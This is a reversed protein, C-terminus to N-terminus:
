EFHKPIWEPINTEPTPNVSYYDHYQMQHRIPKKLLVCACVGSPWNLAPSHPTTLSSFFIITTTQSQTRTQWNASPRIQHHSMNTPRFQVPKVLKPHSPHGIPPPSMRSGGITRISIEEGLGNRSNVLPHWGFTNREYDNSNFHLNQLKKRREENKSEKEKYKGIRTYITEHKKKM